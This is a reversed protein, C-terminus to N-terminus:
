NSEPLLSDLCAYRAALDRHVIDKEETLYKMGSAMQRCIDVLRKQGVETFFMYKVRADKDKVLELVSGKNCFETTLWTDGAASVYVGFYGVVNVHQLEKLTEGESIFESLVTTDILRKLAVDHDGDERHHVGFYVEGFAGAGLQDKIDIEGLANADGAAEQAADGGSARALKSLRTEQEDGVDSSSFDTVKARRQRAFILVAVVVVVCVAAVAGVIIFILTSDAAAPSSDATTTAGSTTPSPITPTGTTPVGTTSVSCAGAFTAKPLCLNSPENCCESANCGSSTHFCQNSVCFDNGNCFLSDDCTIGDPAGCAATGSNCTRKCPDTSAACPDGSHLLNGAGDCTDVGNCFQGDDVVTRNPAFCTNGPEGCTRSCLTGGLCPDAGGVCSGAGDCTDVGTCFLGDECLVGARAFCTRSREECTNNCSSGNVCPDGSHNSCSGAVCFDVGNCFIGDLVGFL